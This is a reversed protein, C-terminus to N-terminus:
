NSGVTGCSYRPGYTKQSGRHAPRHSKPRDPSRTAFVGTLPNNKNWRPHLKFVDRSSQHFWTLLILQQGEVIGKLGEAVRKDIRVWADPAGEDGQGPAEERTRLSSEVFGIPRLLYDIDKTM